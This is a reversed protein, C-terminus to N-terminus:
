KIARAFIELYKGHFMEKEFFPSKSFHKGLSKVFDKLVDIRCIIEACSTGGTIRLMKLNFNLVKYIISRLPKTVNPSDTYFKKSLKLFATSLEKQM